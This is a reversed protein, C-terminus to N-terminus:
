EVWDAIFINTENPETNNRNSAFVLTSGDRSFMPFGDFAEYYTLRELGTGDDNILYLEFNRGAPDDMNSAFIIQRNNPHFYPCFNAAGNRTIQSRNTGNADMVFIEMTSPRVLGAGLLDQYETIERPTQPHHARYVIRSGDPSFFAGGDYGIQHTLRRVNSGDPEMVYLELDGDRMSTFLIASGDPAYVAEADYGPSETLQIPDGGAPGVSFIDYDAYIPWVYGQEHSPKPPCDEEIHYTSSYIIRGADPAFFSCTTRGTGTSVLRVGSGDTNMAFIQDCMFTDRTSQFVLMRGDASFYAEANEGGFTLQRINRLHREGTIRLPDTRTQEPQYSRVFRVRDSLTPHSYLWFEIFASPNPNSLNVAALKEFARAAADGDGTKDMGYVDSQHEFHRWIGNTIPAFLFEFVVFFVLLLPFSAIDSLRAFGFRTTFRRIVRRVILNTLFCFVLISAGSIFVAIWIHQKLYHAMEHAIVFLIEDDAMQALMNDYVIIRKTQGLGTVMANLKRTNKSAQMEYIEPDEIGGEVALNLIKTKLPSEEMPDITYFMPMLVVPAIVAFFVIFPISGVGFWAWWGRSFKRILAYLISVVIIAVLWGILFTKIEDWFWGGVGQNSLEYKHELIFRSYYALPLSLINTVVLFMLLYIATVFFRRKGIANAWDRMRASFGSFLIVLLMLISFGVNIFYLYNKTDSYEIARRREEPSMTGWGADTEAIQEEQATASPRSQGLATGALGFLSLGILCCIVTHLCRRRM